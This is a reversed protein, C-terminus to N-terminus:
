GNMRERIVRATQAEAEKASGGNELTEIILPNIGDLADLDRIAKGIGKWQVGPRKCTRSANVRIVSLERDYYQIPGNSELYVLISERARTRLAKVSPERTRGSDFLEQITVKVVQYVHDNRKVAHSQRTM